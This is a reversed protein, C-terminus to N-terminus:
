AVGGCMVLTDATVKDLPKRWHNTERSSSVCTGPSATASNWSAKNHTLARRPEFPTTVPDRLAEADLARLGVM